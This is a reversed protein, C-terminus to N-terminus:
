DCGIRSVGTFKLRDDNISRNKMFYSLKKILNRALFVAPAIPKVCYIDTKSEINVAGAIEGGVAIM